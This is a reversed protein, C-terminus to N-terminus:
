SLEKTPPCSGSGTGTSGRRTSWSSGSPPRMACSAKRRGIVVGHAPGSRPAADLRRAAQPFRKREHGESSAKAARRAPRRHLAASRCHIRVTRLTKFVKERDSEALTFFTNLVEDKFEGRDHPTRDKLFFYWGIQHERIIQAHISV